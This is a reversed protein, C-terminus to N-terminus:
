ENVQDLARRLEPLLANRYYELSDRLVSAVLTRAQGLPPRKDEPEGGLRAYQDYAAIVAQRKQEFFALREELVGMDKGQGQLYNMVQRTETILLTFRDEKDQKAQLIREKLTQPVFEARPTTPSASPSSSQPTGKDPTVRSDSQFEPSKRIDELKKQCDAAGLKTYEQCREINMYKKIFGICSERGMGTRKQCEAIVTEAESAAWVRHPTQGLSFIWINLGFLFFFLLRMSGTYCTM